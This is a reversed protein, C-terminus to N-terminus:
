IGNFILPNRRLRVRIDEFGLEKEGCSRRPANLTELYPKDVKIMQGEVYCFGCSFACSDGPNLTISDCLLKEGFKRSKFTLVTRANDRMIVPKKNITM